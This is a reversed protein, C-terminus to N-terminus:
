LTLLLGLAGEIWRWWFAPALWALAYFRLCTPHSYGVWKFWSSPLPFELTELHLNWCEGSPKWRLNWRLAMATSTTEQTTAWLTSPGRPTGPRLLGPPQLPESVLLLRVRIPPHSSEVLDASAARVGNKHACFRVGRVALSVKREERTRFLLSCARSIFASESGSPRLGVLPRSRAVACARPSVYASTTRPRRRHLCRALLRSGSHFTCSYASLLLLLHHPRVQPPPSAGDPQSPDGKWTVYRSQLPRTGGARRRTQSGSGGGWLIKVCNIKM